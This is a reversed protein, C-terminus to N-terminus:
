SKRGYAALGGHAAEASARKLAEENPEIGWGPTDPM